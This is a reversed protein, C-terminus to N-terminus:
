DAALLPNPVYKRYPLLAALFESKLAEHIVPDPFWRKITDIFEQIERDSPPRMCLFSVEEPLNEGRVSFNTGHLICELGDIDGSRGILTEVRVEVQPIIIQVM